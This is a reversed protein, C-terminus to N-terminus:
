WSPMEFSNIFRTLTQIREKRKFFCYPFITLCVILQFQLFLTGYFSLYNGLAVITVRSHIIQTEPILSFRFKLLLM